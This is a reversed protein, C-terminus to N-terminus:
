IGLANISDTLIATACAVLVTLGTVRRNIFGLDRMKGDVELNIGPVCTNTREVCLVHITEYQM